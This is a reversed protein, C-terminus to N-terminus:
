KAEGVVMEKVGGVGVRVTDFQCMKDCVMTALAKINQFNLIHGGSFVGWVMWALAQLGGGEGFPLIALYISGKEYLSKGLPSM